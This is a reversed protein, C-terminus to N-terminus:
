RKYTLPPYREIELRIIAQDATDNSSDPLSVRVQMSPFCRKVDIRRHTNECSKPIRARIGTSRHRTSEEIPLHTYWYDDLSSSKEDVYRKTEIYIQRLHVDYIQLEYANSLNNAVGM